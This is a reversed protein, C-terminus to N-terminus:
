MRFVYLNVGNPTPLLVTSPQVNPIAFEYSILLTGSRMETKAKQWLAPMAAPSLYAFVVDYDAFHLQNYDGRNFKAVSTTLRARVASVLWPLPAIEVGIFRNSPFRRALHLTLGGLGSGIDVLAINRDTPLLEAVANWVSLGSPYFPVQTRFTSWYLFLFVLFAFLFLSPPLQLALALVLVVPFLFQIVLWWPALGRWRSLLSACVGQMSASLIPGVSAGFVAWIVSNILLVIFFSVVQLILAQVAPLSFVSRSVASKAGPRGAKKV